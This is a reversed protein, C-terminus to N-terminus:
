FPPPALSRARPLGNQRRKDVYMSVHVRLREQKVKRRSNAIHNYINATSTHFLGAIDAPTLQDFFFAEFIERERRSLCHLLSRIHDVTEKRLLLVAPDSNDTDREASSQSLRQLISDLDGWQEGGRVSGGGGMNAVQGEWSTLPMEKGYPGGRRLKMLAQNRVIRHFWPLFRKPDTITGIRLFARILADQVIDEAMYEDRAMSQALRCAKSRHRRVLEGFASRDGTKAQETLAEDSLSRLQGGQEAEERGCPDTYSEVSKKRWASELQGRTESILLAAGWKRRYKM